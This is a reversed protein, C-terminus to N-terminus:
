IKRRISRINARRSQRLRTYKSLSFPTGIALQFTFADKPPISIASSPLKIAAPPFRYSVTYKSLSVFFDFVSIEKSSYISSTSIEASPFYMAAPVPPETYKKLRIDGLVSPFIKLQEFIISGDGGLWVIPPLSEPPAGFDDRQPSPIHSPGPVMQYNCSLSHDVLPFIWSFDAPSIPFIM